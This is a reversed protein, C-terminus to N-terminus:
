DIWTIKNEDAFKSLTMENETKVEEKGDNKEAEATATECFWRPLRQLENRLRDRITKEADVDIKTRKTRMWERGCM